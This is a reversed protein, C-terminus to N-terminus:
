HSSERVLERRRAADGALAKRGILQKLEAERKEGHGVTIAGVLRGNRSYTSLFDDGTPPRSSSSAPSIRFEFESIEHSIARLPM